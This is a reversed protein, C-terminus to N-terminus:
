GQGKSHNDPETFRCQLSGTARIEGRGSHCSRQTMVTPIWPPRVGALIWTAPVVKPRREGRVSHIVTMKVLQNFLLSSLLCLFHHIVKTDSDVWSSM